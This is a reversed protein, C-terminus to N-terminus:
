LTESCIADLRLNRFFSRKYRNIYYRCTWPTYNIIVNRDEVKLRIKDCLGTILEDMMQLRPRRSSIKGDIEWKLLRRRLEERLCTKDLEEEWNRMNM